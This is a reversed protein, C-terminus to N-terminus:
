DMDWYARHRGCSRCQFVYHCPSAKGFHDWLGEPEGGAAAVVSDFFKRPDQPRHSSKLMSVWEGLYTMPQKCCFLWHEGQWTVFGPTRLLEFLHESPVRVGRWEDESEILVMEFEDTQLGPVGHTVGQLAQEWSVM